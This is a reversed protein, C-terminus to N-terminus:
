IPSTRGRKNCNSIHRTSCSWNQHHFSSRLSCLPHDTGFPIFCKGGFSVAIKSINWYTCREGSKLYGVPLINKILVRKVSFKDCIDPAHFFANSPSSAAYITRLNWEWDKWGEKFLFNSPIKKSALAESISKWDDVQGKHSLNSKPYSPIKWFLVSVNFLSFPNIQLTVRCLLPTKKDNNM